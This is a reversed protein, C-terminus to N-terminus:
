QHVGSSNKWCAMIENCTTVLATGDKPIVVYYELQFADRLTSEVCANTSIGSTVVTRIDHSRLLKDLKTGKFGSYRHKYIILEGQRPALEPIFECGESGEICINEASYSARRRQALWPGSDSMHDRLTLMGVHGILLGSQRAAALLQKLNPMVSRRIATVDRGAKHASFGELLFDKQMDIVLLATHVPNLVEDPNLLMKPEM